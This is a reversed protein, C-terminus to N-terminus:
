HSMGIRHTFEEVSLNGDKDSDMMTFKGECEEKTVESNSDKDTMKFREEFNKDNGHVEIHHARMEEKSITGNADKDKVDFHAMYEEKSVKGDADKDMLSVAKEASASEDSAPEAPAEEKKCSVAAALSLTLVAMLIKKTM